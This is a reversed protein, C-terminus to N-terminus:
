ASRRRAIEGLIERWLGSMKEWEGHARLYAVAGVLDNLVLAEITPHPTGVHAPLAEDWGDFVPWPVLMQDGDRHQVRMWGTGDRLDFYTMSTLPKMWSWPSPKPEHPTPQIAPQTQKRPTAESRNTIVGAPQVPQPAPAREQEFQSLLAATNSVLLQREAETLQRGSDSSGGGHRAPGLADNSGYRKAFCTSGMVLLKGEDRVVHIRRYVAHGCGPQECRVRASFDVAVMACLEPM